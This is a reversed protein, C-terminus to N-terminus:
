VPARACLSRRVTLFSLGPRRELIEKMLRRRDREDKVVFRESLLGAEQTGGDARAWVSSRLPSPRARSYRRLVRLCFSHFTSIALAPGVAPRLM